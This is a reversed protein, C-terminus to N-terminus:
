REVEVLNLCMGRHSLLRRQRDTGRTERLRWHRQLEAMGAGAESSLSPQFM